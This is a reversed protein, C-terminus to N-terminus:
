NLLPFFIIILPFVSCCLSFLFEVYLWLKKVFSPLTKRRQLEGQLHPKEEEFVLEGAQLRAQGNEEFVLDNIEM